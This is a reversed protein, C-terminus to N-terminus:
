HYFWPNKRYQESAYDKIADVPATATWKATLYDMGPVEGSESTQGGYVNARVTQENYNPYHRLRKVSAYAADRAQNLSIAAAHPDRPLQEKAKKNLYKHYKVPNKRAQKIGHEPTASHGRATSINMGRNYLSKTIGNRKLRNRYTDSLADWNRVRAM